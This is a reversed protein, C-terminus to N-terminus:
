RAGPPVSGSSHTLAFVTGLAIGAGAVAGLKILFSRVQRQKSPAIAAGAPRSAMNGSPRLEQAAATGLTDPSVPQQTQNNSNNAAQRSEVMDPSEPLQKGNEQTGNIMEQSAKDEQQQLQQNQDTSQSPNGQTQQASNGTSGNSSQAPQPQQQAAASCLGIVGYLFMAAAVSTIQAMCSRKM